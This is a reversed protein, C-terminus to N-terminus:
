GNTEKKAADIAADTALDKRTQANAEVAAELQVIEGEIERQRAALRYHEYALVGLRARFQADRRTVGTEVLSPM